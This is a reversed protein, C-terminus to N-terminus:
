VKVKVSTYLDRLQMQSQLSAVQASLIEKVKSDDLSVIKHGQLEWVEDPTGTPSVFCSWTYGGLTPIQMVVLKTQVSTSQVM